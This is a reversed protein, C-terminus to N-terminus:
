IAALSIALGKWLGRAARQRRIERMIVDRHDGARCEARPSGLRSRGAPDDGIETVV